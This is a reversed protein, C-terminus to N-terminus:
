KAANKKTATGRGKEENDMYCICEFGGGVCFCVIFL